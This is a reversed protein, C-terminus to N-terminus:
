NKEEDGTSESEEVAESMLNTIAQEVATFSNIDVLRGVEYETLSEDSSKLCAYVFTRVASLKKKKLEVIANQITDYKDELEAMANLDFNLEYDKGQLTIKTPKVQLDKGSIKKSNKSSAM